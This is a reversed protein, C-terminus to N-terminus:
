SLNQLLILYCNTSTNSLLLHKDNQISSISILSPPVVNPTSPSDDQAQRLIPRQVRTKSLSLSVLGRQWRVKLTWRNLWEAHCDKKVTSDLSVTKLVGHTKTFYDEVWCRWFFLTLFFWICYLRNGKRPVPLTQNTGHRKSTTVAKVAEIPVSGTTGM